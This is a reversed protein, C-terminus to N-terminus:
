GEWKVLFAHQNPNNDSPGSPIIKEMKWGADNAEIQVVKEEINQGQYRELLGNNFTPCIRWSEPLKLEWYRTNKGFMLTEFPEYM